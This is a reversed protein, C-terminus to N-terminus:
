VNGSLKVRLDAELEVATADSGVRGGALYHGCDGVVHLRGLRAGDWSLM